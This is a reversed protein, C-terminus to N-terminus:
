DGGEATVPSPGNRTGDFADGNQRVAANLPRGAAALIADALPNPLPQGALETTPHLGVLGDFVALRWQDRTPEDATIGDLKPELLFNGVMGFSPPHDPDRFGMLWQCLESVDINFQEFHQYRRM